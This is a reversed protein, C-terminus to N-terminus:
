GAGSSGTVRRKLVSRIEASPSRRDNARLRGYEGASTELRGKTAGRVHIHRTYALLPKIEDESFGLSVYHSYDLTLELEPALECLRLVDSPSRCVSGVGPEISFRVGQERAEAARRGLEEGARALSDEHTEGPWDIGPIM